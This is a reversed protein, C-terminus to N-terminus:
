KKQKYFSRHLYEEYILGGKKNYGYLTTDFKRYGDPTLGKFTTRPLYTIGGLADKHSWFEVTLTGGYTVARIYLPYDLTNIFRYDIYDEAITADQGRPVYDVILSHNARETARIGARLQTNYMTSSVQCIGGGIGSVPHGNMFITAYKYGAEGIVPSVKDAYSFEDGPMLLTGNIRSAAIRVNETRGAQSLPFYSSYGAIRSDVTQLLTRDRSPAVVEKELFIELPGENEDDITKQLGERIREKSIEKGSVGETELFQGERYVIGHEVMPEDVRGKVRKIWKDLAEGQYSFPLHYTIYKPMGSGSHQKLLLNSDRFCEIDDLLEELGVDLELGLDGRSREFTSTECHIKVLRAKQAKISEKALERLEDRGMFSIDTGGLIVGNEITNAAEAPLLGSDLLPNEITNTLFALSAIMMIRWM